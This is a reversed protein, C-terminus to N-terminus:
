RAPAGIWPCYLLLDETLKKVGDSTRRPRMLYKFLSAAAAEEEEFVAADPPGLLFAHDVRGWETPSALFLVPHAM